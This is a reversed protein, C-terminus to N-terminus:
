RYYTRQIDPVNDENERRLSDGAHCMEIDLCDMFGFYRWEDKLVELYFLDRLISGDALTQLEEVYGNDFKEWIAFRFHDVWHPLWM